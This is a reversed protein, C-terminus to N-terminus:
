SIENPISENWSDEVVKVGNLKQFFNLDKPVVQTAIHKMYLHNDLIARISEYSVSLDAGIERLSLHSNETLIEM